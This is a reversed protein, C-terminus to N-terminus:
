RAGGPQALRRSCRGLRRLVRAFDEDSVEQGSQQSYYLEQWHVMRPSGRAIPIQLTIKTGDNSKVEFEIDRTIKILAKTGILNAMHPPAGSRTVYTYCAVTRESGDPTTVLFVTKMCLCKNKVWADLSVMLLEVTDFNRLLAYCWAPRSRM